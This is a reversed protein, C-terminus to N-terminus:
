KFIKENKDFPFEGYMMRYLVVGAAWVDPEYNYDHKTIGQLEPSMYLPTGMNTYSTFTLNRDKSIGFDSLILDFNATLLSNKCSCDRHFM